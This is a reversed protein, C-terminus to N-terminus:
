TKKRIMGPQRVASDPGGALIRQQVPEAQLGPQADPNPDQRVKAASRENLWHQNRYSRREPIQAHSYSDESNKRTIRRTKLVQFQGSVRRRKYKQSIQQDAKEGHERKM